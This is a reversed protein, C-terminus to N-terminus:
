RGGHGHEDHEDHEDHDPANIGANLLDQSFSANADVFGAHHENAMYTFLRDDLRERAIATHGMQGNLNHMAEELKKAAKDSYGYKGESAQQIINQMEQDIAQRRQTMNRAVKGLTADLKAKTEDRHETLQKLKNLMHKPISDLNVDRFSEIKVDEPSAFLQEGNKLAKAVGALGERQIKEQLNQQDQRRQQARMDKVIHKMIKDEVKRVAAAEKNYSKVLSKARNLRQKNIWDQIPHHDFNKAQRAVKPADLLSRKLETAQQTLNDFGDRISRGVAFLPTDRWKARSEESKAHSAMLEIASHQLRLTELRDYQEKLSKNVEKYHNDLEEPITQEDKILNFIAAYTADLEKQYANIAAQAQQSAQDLEAVDKMLAERIEGWAKVGEAPTVHKPDPIAAVHQMIENLLEKRKSANPESLYKYISDAEEQTLEGNEVAERFQEETGDAKLIAAIEQMTRHSYDINTFVAGVTFSKDENLPMSTELTLDGDVFEVHNVRGINVYNGVTSLAPEGLQNLVTGKVRLEDGLKIDEPKVHVYKDGELRELKGSFGPEFVHSKDKAGDCMERLRQKREDRTSM